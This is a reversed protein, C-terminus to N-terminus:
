LVEGDGCLPSGGWYHSRSATGELEASKYNLSLGLQVSRFTGAVGIGAEHVLRKIEHSDFTVESDRFQGQILADYIVGRARYATWFYVEHDKKTVPIFNGRNIPDYPLTWFGSRRIGRRMQLGISANTQFGVSADTTWALDLYKNRLFQKGYSMRYKFTPEGGDSIQHQWGKPDVPTDNGSLSRTYGHFKTQLVKAIELGLIGIQLETGIVRDYAADAMVLKSSFYLLSAYPRDDFIPESNELDDPTFNVSGVFFSRQVKEKDLGLSTYTNIQELAADLYPVSKAEDEWFLEAAIGVTYDRDENRGPIFFDQDMYIGIYKAREGDAKSEGPLSLSASLAVACLLTCELINCKM